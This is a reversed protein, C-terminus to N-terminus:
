YLTPQSCNSGIYVAISLQRLLEREVNRIMQPSCKVGAITELKRCGALIANLSDITVQNHYVPRCAPVQRVYIVRQPFRPRHHHDGNMHAM